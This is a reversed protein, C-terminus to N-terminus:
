RPKDVYLQTSPLPQNANMTYDGERTNTGIYSVRFGTNWQQREVTLNYQMSYPIRVDKRAAQPISVTAPGAVGTAPFVQPLIVTPNPSPNTFSPENIVYPAAGSNGARTVIDYYIGYGGRIVTNNGWPRYAFGLR